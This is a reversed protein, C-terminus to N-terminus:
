PGARLRGRRPARPPWPPRAWPPPDDDLRGAGAGAGFLGRRRAGRRGRLRRRLRFGADGRAPRRAWVRAASAAAAGGRAGGGSEGRGADAPAAAALDGRGSAGGAGSARDGFPDDAPGRSRPTSATARRRCSPRRARAAWTPWARPGASAAARGGRRPGRAGAGAASPAPAPRRARSRSVCCRRAASFLRRSASSAARRWAARLRWSSTAFRRWSCRSASSLRLAPMSAAGGGGGAAWGGGGAVAGGGAARRPRARAAGAPPRRRRLGRPERRAGVGRGLLGRGLRLRARQVRVLDAVALLRRVVLVLVLLALAVLVHRVPRAARREALARLPWRSASGAWTKWDAAARRALEGAMKLVSRAKSARRGVPRPRPGRSGARAAASCAPRAELRRGAATRSREGSGGELLLCQQQRWPMLSTAYARRRRHRWSPRDVEPEDATRVLPREFVHVGGRSYLSHYRGTSTTTRATTTSSRSSAPGVVTHRTVAPAVEM